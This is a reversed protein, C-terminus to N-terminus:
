EVSRHPPRSRPLFGQANVAPQEDRVAELAVSADAISARGRQLAWKHMAAAIVKQAWVQTPMAPHPVQVRIGGGADKPDDDPWPGHNDKLVKIEDGRNEGAWSPPGATSLADWQTLQDQNGVLARHQSGHRVLHDMAAKSRRGLRGVAGRIDNAQKLRRRMLHVRSQKQVKAAAAVRRTRQRVLSGRAFRQIAVAGAQKREAEAGRQRQAEYPAENLKCVLPAAHPPPAEGLGLSEGGALLWRGCRGSAVGLLNAVREEM